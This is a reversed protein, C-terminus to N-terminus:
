LYEKVNYIEGNVVAEDNIIDILVGAVIKPNKLANKEKLNKYHEVDTFAEKNSSRIIEQMETDMVGPNFAIVKNETQMEEQELAVVKTYMNMSAKTACYASWGSIPREAAGSTIVVSISPIQQETATKLLQNTLIMPTITNLQVHRMIDRSKTNIAQDMPEVTAANNILYIMEPEKEILSIDHMVKQFTEEVEESVTLDCPYHQYIQNNEKAIESLKFSNSRSIGYVAVGSELLLSAIAEGLGKSVGTIIAIKLM